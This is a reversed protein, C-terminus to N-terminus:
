CTVFELERMILAVKQKLNNVKKNAAQRSIKLENALDVVTFDGKDLLVRLTKKECPKLESVLQKMFDIFDISNIKLDDEGLLNELQNESEGDSSVLSNSSITAGYENIRKKAYMGMTSRRVGLKLRPVLYTSFAGRGDYRQYAEWTALRLEQMVEEKEPKNYNIREITHNAFKNLMRDFQKLVDEYTMKKAVGNSLIITKTM